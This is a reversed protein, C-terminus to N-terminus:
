MNIAQYQQQQQQLQEGQRVQHRIIGVAAKSSCQRATAFAV